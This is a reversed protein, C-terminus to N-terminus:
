APADTPTARGRDRELRAVREHLAALEELCAALAANVEDLAGAIGRLQDQTRVQLTLLDELGPRGPPEERRPAVESRM